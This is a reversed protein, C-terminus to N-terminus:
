QYLTRAVRFGLSDHRYDPTYGNRYAARLYRSDSLWSGGRVVRYKCDSTIWPSNDSPAGVYNKHYCDEVWQYVNGAMDYLGFPNPKFSGVPAPAKADWKSGCDNCNANNTGIDNGWYYPTTKGARAAYEWEAESLLRYTKGTMKNLWAVYLQADSWLVNIVPQRGRGFGADSIHPCGLYKECADWEDFTVDNAAVAFRKTITVPHQPGESDFSGEEDNPSGMMFRGAPIVVMEPCYDSDNACEKFSQGPKLARERDSTLAFPSFVRAQYPREVSWWHYQAKLFDQNIIGILGLIIIVLGAYAAVLLRRTGAKAKKERAISQDIFSRDIPLLEGRRNALWAEARTLAAGMLLADKKAPEPTAEWSRRAAELGSRWNLFEREAKIWDRLRDWRRFLAEHAVEAYTEGSEPKVTVLLRYPHDALASILRWEADSFESRLARRRTPEEGERVTALKLTLIRRLSDELGPNKAIFADAREVLVRGLDVARYPLRLVGDGKEVMTGWMDDLLYSLLPLAGADETSEEAARDVIAEALRDTEFRASLLEAPQRVVKGLQEKRLPPVNIQHHAGFFAEDKQLEGIFDARLSMMMRLRSDPLAQAIIESFRRREQREARVYLEEGQDISLLFAPPEPENLTERYRAQTADLLGRLSNRGDLLGKTWDNILNERHPDVAEFRWLRVFQEVLARVPETGPKFKLFSWRRSAAFAAPWASQEEAEKPWAQRMLAAIVGAQALSSKGVGSNGLLLVFKDPMAALAKIVECTEHARGFFFDADAETMADLGRYPTTYRWLEHPTDGGGQAADMLQALSNEAAPDPTVVWHLQRLFPLGPAARSGALVVIIPFAAEKVRRDLAEYYEMVQWPGVGNEGILLVFATASAIANALEPLWLGGARLSKPAFFIEAGQDKRRLAAELSEMLSLDQSNYSLFWRRM